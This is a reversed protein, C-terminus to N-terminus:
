NKWKVPVTKIRADTLKDPVPKRERDVLFIYRLTDPQVAIILFVSDMISVVERNFDPLIDGNFFEIFHVVHNTLKGVIDRVSQVLKNGVISTQFFDVLM